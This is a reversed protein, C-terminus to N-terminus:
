QSPGHVHQNSYNRDHHILFDSKKWSVTFVGVVSLEAWGSVTGTRPLLPIVRYCAMVFDIQTSPWDVRQAEAVASFLGRVFLPM